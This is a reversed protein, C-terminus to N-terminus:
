QKAAKRARRAREVPIAAEAAGKCTFGAPVVVGDLMLHWADHLFYTETLKPFFPAAVSQTKDASDFYHQHMFKVKLNFKQNSLTKDSRRRVVNM